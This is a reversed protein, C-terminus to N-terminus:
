EILRVNWQYADQQRLGLPSLSVWQHEDVYRGFLEQFQGLTAKRSQTDGGSFSVLMLHESESVEHRSFIVTAGGHNAVSFYSNNEQSLETCQLLQEPNFAAYKTFHGTTGDPLIQDYRYLVGNECNFIESM